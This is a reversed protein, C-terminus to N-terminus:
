LLMSKGSLNQPTWKPGGEFPPSQPPPELETFVRPPGSAPLGVPPTPGAPGQAGAQTPQAPRPAAATCAALAAGAATTATLKLFDRRQMWPKHFMTRGEQGKASSSYSSMM